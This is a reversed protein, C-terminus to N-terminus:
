RSGALMGKRLFPPIDLDGTEEFTRLPLQRIKETVSSRSSRGDFGTAIVTIKVEDQLRHD